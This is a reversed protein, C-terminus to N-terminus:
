RKILSWRPLWMKWANSMNVMGQLSCSQQAGRSFSQNLIGEFVGHEQPTDKAHGEARHGASASLRGGGMNRLTVTVRKCGGDPCDLPAKKMTHSSLQLIQWGGKGNGTEQPTEGPNLWNFSMRTKREIETMGTVAADSFM